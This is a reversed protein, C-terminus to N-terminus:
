YVYLKSEKACKNRLASHWYIYLQNKVVAFTLDIQPHVRWLKSVQKSWSLDLDISWECKHVLSHYCKLWKRLTQSDHQSAVSLFKEFVSLSPHEHKKWKKEYHNFCRHTEVQKVLMCSSCGTNNNIIQKYGWWGCPTMEPSRAQNLM